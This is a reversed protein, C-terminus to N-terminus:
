SGPFWLDVDNFAFLRSETFVADSAKVPNQDADVPHLSQRQGCTRIGGQQQMQVNTFKGANQLREEESVTRTQVFGTRFQVTHVRKVTEDTDPNDLLALVEYDWIRHYIKQDMRQEHATRFGVRFLWCTEVGAVISDRPLKRTEIFRTLQRDARADTTHGHISYKIRYWYAVRRRTSTNPFSVTDESVLEERDGHDMEFDPELDEFQIAISPYFQEVFEEPDPDDVFVPVSYSDGKDLTDITAGLFTDRLAVEIDHFNTAM